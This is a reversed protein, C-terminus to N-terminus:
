ADFTTRQFISVALEVLKADNFTRRPNLPTRRTRHYPVTQVESPHAPATLTLHPLATLAPAATM